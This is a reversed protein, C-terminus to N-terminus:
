CGEETDAEEVPELLTAADDSRESPEAEIVLGANGPDDVVSVPGAGVEVVAEPPPFFVFALANVHGAAKATPIIIAEHSTKATPCVISCFGRQCFRFIQLFSPVSGCKRTQIKPVFGERTARGYV